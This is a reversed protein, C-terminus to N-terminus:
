TNRPRDPSSVMQALCACVAPAERQGDVGPYGRGAYTSVAAVRGRGM